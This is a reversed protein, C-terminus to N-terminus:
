NFRHRGPLAPSAQNVPKGPYLCAKAGHPDAKIEDPKTNKDRWSKHQLYSRGTTKGNM